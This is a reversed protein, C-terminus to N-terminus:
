PVAAASLAKLAVRQPEVCAFGDLCAPMQDAEAVVFSKHSDIM